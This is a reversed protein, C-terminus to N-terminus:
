GDDVELAAHDGAAQIALLVISAVIASLAREWDFRKM